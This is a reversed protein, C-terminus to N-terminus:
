GHNERRDKRNGRVMFAAAQGERPAVSLAAGVDAAELARRVAELAIAPTNNERSLHALVIEAAGAAALVAAFRGAEENSLHGGPGLIRKKLYYPYPGSQLMEVDHNAELVILDVGPLLAEAEPTVYGTDTLIGVTGEVTDFRYGCAGPADHATPIATAWCGELPIKECLPVSRFRAEFDPFRGKLDQAAPDTAWVLCSARKLLTQLGSIHDSHTHTIFIACLDSAELGLAGLGQTIRRCSIGADVLLHGGEWSLLLANGSSGSAFTHVTTM